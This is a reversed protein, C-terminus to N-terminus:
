CQYMGKGCTDIISINWLVVSTFSQSDLHKILLRRVKKLIALVPLLGLVDPVAGQKSHIYM